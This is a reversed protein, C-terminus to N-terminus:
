TRRRTELPRQDYIRGKWLNIRRATFIARHQLMGDLVVNTFVHTTLPMIDTLVLFGQIVLDPIYIAQQLVSCLM